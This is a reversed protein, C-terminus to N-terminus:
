SKQYLKKYIEPTTTFFGEAFGSIGNIEARYANLGLIAKDYARSKLQSQHAGIAKKKDEINNTIDVVRNVFIPTWIEYAWIEKVAIQKGSLVNILVENTARHDPHNDLFSPVFIIDPKVENILDSLARAVATGAALKGDQYGFFRLDNFGLIEASNKAENKRIEILDKDIRKPEGEEDRGEPVGGSGDCLYAVTIKSGCKSLKHLAGGLGFVDDDPHPSLVLVNQASIINDVVLHHDFKTARFFSTMDLAKALSNQSLLIKRLPRM